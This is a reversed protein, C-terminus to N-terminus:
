QVATNKWIAIGQNMQDIKSQFDKISSPDNKEKALSLAKEETAIALQKFGAKYLLCAYTDVHIYLNPKKKVVAEMLSICQKLIKPDNTYVFVFEYAFNNFMYMEEESIGENTYKEMSYSIFNQWEKKKYYYRIKQDVIVRNATETNFNKSINKKMLSWEPNNNPSPSKGEGSLYPTIYKKTITFDTFIRSYGPSKMLSDAEVPNHYMFKFINDNVSFIKDFVSIFELLEPCLVSSVKQHDLYSIKFKNAVVNAISDNHFRNAQVAFKSLDTGKLTGNLYKEITLVYDSTLAMNAIEMFKQKSKYGVELYVLQGDPNFFLMTPFGDIRYTKQMNLTANYWDKVWQNDGPTRDFQLKVSLFKKQMFDGIMPDAYVIRDMDKCPGCWTAMADVFIFKHESKAKQVLQNWNTSYLFSIGKENQAMLFIPVFLLLAIILRKM